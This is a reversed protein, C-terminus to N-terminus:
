YGADHLRNGAAVMAKVAAPAQEGPPPSATRCSGPRRVRSLRCPRRGHRGPRKAAAPPRNQRRNSPSSNSRRRGRRHGTRAAVEGASKDIGLHQAAQWWVDIRYPQATGSRRGPGRATASTASTSCAQAGCARGAARDPLSITRARERRRVHVDRPEAPNSALVSLEAFSDPNAPLYSQAPDPISGYTVPPRTARAATSPRASRMGAARGCLRLPRSRGSAAAAGAPVGAGDVRRAAEDPKGRAPRSVGCRGAGARGDGVSRALSALRAGDAVCRTM